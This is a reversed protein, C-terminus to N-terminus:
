AKKQKAPKKGAAKKAPKPKVAKKVPKESIKKAPPQEAAKKMARAYADAANQATLHLRRAAAGAHLMTDKAIQKFRGKAEKDKASAAMAMFRDHRKKAAEMLSKNPQKAIARIIVDLDSEALKL